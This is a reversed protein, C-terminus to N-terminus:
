GGVLVGSAGAASKNLWHQFLQRLSEDAVNNLTRCMEDYDKSKQQRYAVMTLAVSRWWESLDVPLRDPRVDTASCEIIRRLMADFGEWARAATLNRRAAGAGHAAAAVIQGAQAWHQEYLHLSDVFHYYKGLSVGLFGAMLEHLLTFTFIDYPLGLWVDQSRMVTIMDLENNRILFRFLNTCPIDKAAKFDRAPDFIVMTAQRSEPDRTFLDVVQAFQDTEGGWCRLRPGYAGRLIGDDAYQRLQSNFTYIWPDESGSLIWLAEACMFGPNLPRLPNLLVRRRPDTLCLIEPHVEITKMGRPSTVSGQEQLTSLIKIYLENVSEATIM